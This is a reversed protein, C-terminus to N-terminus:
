LLLLFVLLYIFLCVVDSCTLCSNFIYHISSVLPCASYKSCYSFVYSYFAVQVRFLYVLILTFAALIVNRVCIILLILVLDIWLLTILLCSFLSIWHSHLLPIASFIFSIHLICSLELIAKRTIASRSWLKHSCFYIALMIYKSLEERIVIKWRAIFYLVLYSFYGFSRLWLTNLIWFSHVIVFFGCTFHM